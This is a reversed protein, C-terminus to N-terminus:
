SVEPARLLLQPYIFHKTSWIMLYNPSLIRKSMNDIYNDYDLEDVCSMGVIHGLRIGFLKLILFQKLTKVM